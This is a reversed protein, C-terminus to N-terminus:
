ELLHSQFVESTERDDLRPGGGSSVDGSGARKQLLDRSSVKPAGRFSGGKEPTKTWSKRMAESHRLAKVLLTQASTTLMEM